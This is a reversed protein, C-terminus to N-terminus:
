QCAAVYDGAVEAATWRNGSYVKVIKGDGSILVTRLNHVIQGDKANYSMGFHDAAKRIEEASGSAFVRGELEYRKGEPKKACGVLVMMAASIAVVAAKIGPRTV